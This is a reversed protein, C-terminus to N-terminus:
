RLVLNSIRVYTKFSKLLEKFIGQEYTMNNALLRVYRYFVEGLLFYIVKKTFLIDQCSSYALKYAFQFQQDPDTHLM